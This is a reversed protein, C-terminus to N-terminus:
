GDNWIESDSWVQTDDWNGNELIDIYDLDTRIVSLGGNTNVGVQYRIGNNDTMFVYAGAPLEISTGREIKRDLERKISARNQSQEGASYAPPAVPLM